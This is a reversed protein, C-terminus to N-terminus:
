IHDDNKELSIKSDLCKKLEKLGFIEPNNDEIFNIYKLGQAIAGSCIIGTLKAIWKWGTLRYLLLFLIKGVGYGRGILGDWYNELKLADQNSIYFIWEKIKIYNNDINLQNKKEWSRFFGLINWCVIREDIVLKPYVHTWGLNEVGNIIKDSFISLLNDPKHTVATIIIKAM